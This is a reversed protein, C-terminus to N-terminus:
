GTSVGLSREIRAMIGNQPDFFQPTVKAWGGLYKITFLQPRIPFDAKHKDYVSLDVPRYGQQAWIEQGQPSYLFKYFAQVAANSRSKKLIALPNEIRITAKPILYFVPKGQAQALKAENEYTRLVDGKGSLFTNLANRGSSDQSVVHQFLKLLYDTAAGSKKGERLQSGYAALVNWRAGGSTFPNAAVVQVGPKILDDWTKIHKPNGKRTALVVVSNTVFGQYKDKNWSADVKGAKVLKDVDPALSLAVVDARLGAEVAREQDGSAGYSQNFSVGKGGSTAKFVPILEQYAEQPTSYAVLSLSNGSSGGCAAVAASLAILAAALAAVLTRESPKSV